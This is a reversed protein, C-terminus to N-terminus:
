KKNLRLKDLLHNLLQCDTTELNSFLRGTQAEMENGIKTALDIGQGTISIDVRRRDEPCRHQEAYGKQVLKDVLRSANSMRDIMRACIDKTTMKVPHSGRLIRLINYQQWSLGHKQVTQKIENELWSSTFLINISAKVEENPFKQQQIADELKM